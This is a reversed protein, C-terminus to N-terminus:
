SWPSRPARWGLRVAVLRLVVAVAVGGLAVPGPAWGLRDGLIVVAAGGLAALAYVEERLVRPVEGALLDRMAGGGAATLAGLLLAALPGLGAELAIRCGTVAFLGLGLADFAMVPRRLREIWPHLLFACLGAALAAPLYRADALATVPTRGILVDRAMGGALAAATALVLVGVLDFRKRVALTGGSLGFVFTGVLDLVQLLAPAGTM